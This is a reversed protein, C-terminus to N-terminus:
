KRGWGLIMQYAEGLAKTAQSDLKEPNNKTQISTNNSTSLTLSDIRKWYSVSTGADTPTKLVNTINIM